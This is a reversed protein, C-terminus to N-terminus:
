LLARLDDRSAAELPRRGMRRVEMVADEVSWDRDTAVWLALVHGTRGSGASCHVVVRESAAKSEDLFSLITEHLTQRDVVSFDPIPAHAVRDADFAEAYTDLLSDYEGLQAEDLLCCIREVDNNHM